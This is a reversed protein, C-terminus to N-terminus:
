HCIAGDARDRTTVHAVLDDADHYAPDSLEDVVAIRLETVQDGDDIGDGAGAMAFGTAGAARSVSYDIALLPRWGDPDLVMRLTESTVSEDPLSCGGATPGILVETPDWTVDIVVTDTPRSSLYFPFFDTGSAENYSPEIVCSSWGDCEPGARGTDFMWGSHWVLRGPTVGKVLIDVGTDPDTLV